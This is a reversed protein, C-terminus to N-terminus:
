PEVKWRSPDILELPWERARAIWAAAAARVEESASERIRELNEGMQAETEVGVVLFGELETAPSLALLLAPLSVRAERAHGRLREAAPRGPPLRRGVEEPDLLLLGQLYVSRYFLMREKPFLAPDAFRRDLANGPCQFATAEPLGRARLVEDPHYVSLGFAGIAGSALAERVCSGLGSEWRDLAESRHLLWAALSKVGLRERSEDLARQVGVRRGPDLGPALKSVVRVEGAIGLRRFVEGLRSESDGYAQATDFWRVGAEWARAVIREAEDLGPRGTRNAVGYDMGLQATGLCLRRVPDSM